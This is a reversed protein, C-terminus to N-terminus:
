KLAEPLMVIVAMIGMTGLSLAAVLLDMKSM